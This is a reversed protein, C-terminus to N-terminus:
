YTALANLIVEMKSRIQSSTCNYDTVCFSFAINKGSTSKVYGAYARVNNLSGSKAIVRGEGAQGKCLGKITGSVGAIPLSSKFVTFNQSQSMFSLLECFHSASIANKRSLGSGDYLEMGNLTLKNKWFDNLYDISVSTSGNSRKAYGVYNLLGEAFLNVSKLNTWYVLDKVSKGVQTFLLDFHEDYNNPMKPSLLRYGTGGNKITIGEQILRDSWEKALQLEPDPMSGKVEFGKRNAPIRGTANRKLAFVDGHIYCDDGNSNSAIVSCNMELNEVKPYISKLQARSGVKGSDFFLKITNDFFNIGAHPAGFYNGLDDLAWGDPAGKYGFESGDAIVAGTISTIGRSKITDVWNLLFDFEHGAECFYKSGMSIDGAGRIWINGHLIGDKDIPGDAYIRTIPVYHEGLVELATATSFLKTISASVLAENEAFRALVKSSDMDVALFSIKSQKLAADSAFHTIAQQVNQARFFISLFLFQFLIYKQM